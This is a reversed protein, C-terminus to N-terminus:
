LTQNDGFAASQYVEAFCSPRGIVLIHQGEVTSASHEIELYPCDLADFHLAALDADPEEFVMEIFRYKRGRLDTATILSAGEIIHYNTLVVGNESIFFGTGFKQVDGDSDINRVVLICQKAHAVIEPITNAVCMTSALVFGCCFFFRQLRRVDMKSKFIM